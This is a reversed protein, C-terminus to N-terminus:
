NKLEDPTTVDSIDSASKTNEKPDNSDTEKVQESKEKQEKLMKRISMLSISEEILLIGLAGYISAGKTYESLKIAMVQNIGQWSKYRKEPYEINVKEHVGKVRDIIGMLITYIFSQEQKKEEDIKQQEEQAKTEEAKIDEPNKRPRGRKRKKPMEGNSKIDEINQKEQEQIPNLDEM